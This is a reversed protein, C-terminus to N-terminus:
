AGPHWVLWALIAAGFILRYIAFPTFGRTRVWHIFWRNILWAIIFSVVFGIALIVWQQPPAGYAAIEDPTKPRHVLAQLLKYCTAAIMTPISLFFSYELATARSLSFVQGGAITSMSRSTGPFVASLIQVAGIWVADLITMDEMRTTKPRTCLADVVWMIVGGVLLAIAMVWLNDLMKGIHKDALYCPGATVLFGIIVLSLPHNWITKNGAEGRPFTHLFTRIRDLFLLPVSLIAGLQIVISYMEWYGSKMSIRTFYEVIRLHATSSVPLFETLGEVVGYLLSLLAYSSFDYPTAPAPASAAATTAAQALLTLM